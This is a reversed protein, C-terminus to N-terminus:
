KLQSIDSKPDPSYSSWDTLHCPSLELDCSFNLGFTTSESIYCMQSSFWFQPLLKNIWNYLHNSSKESKESSTKSNLFHKQKKLATEVLTSNYPSYGQKPGNHLLQAFEKNLITKNYFLLPSVLFKTEAIVVSEHLVFLKWVGPKLPTNLKPTQLSVNFPQDSSGNSEVKVDYTAAIKDSPDVWVFTTSMTETRSHWKHLAIPKSFPGLICGFNRFIM